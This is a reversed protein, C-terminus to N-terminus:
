HLFLLGRTRGEYALPPFPESKLGVPPANIVAAVEGILHADNLDRLDRVESRLTQLLAGGTEKARAQARNYQGM